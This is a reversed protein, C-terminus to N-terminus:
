TPIALFEASAFKRLEDVLPAGRTEARALAVLAARASLAQQPADEAEIAVIVMNRFVQINAYVYSVSEALRPGLLGLKAVNSEFIPSTPTPIRPLKQHSGGDALELIRAWGDRALPFAEQYSGLEGALCAALATADRHRKYSEAGFNALAAVVLAVAGAILAVTIPETM